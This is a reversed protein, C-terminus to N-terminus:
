PTTTCGDSGLQKPTKTQEQFKKIWRDALDEPNRAGQQRFTQVAVARMVQLAQAPNQMVRWCPRCYYFATETHGQSIAFAREQPNLEVAHMLDLSFQVGCVGCPKKGAVNTM